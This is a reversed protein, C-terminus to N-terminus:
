APVEIWHGSTNELFVLLEKRNNGHNLWLEGFYRYLRELDVVGVGYAAVWEVHDSLTYRGNKLAGLARAYQYGTGQVWAYVSDHRSLGIVLYGNGEKEKPYLLSQPEGKYEMLNIAGIHAERLQVFVSGLPVEALLRAAAASVNM